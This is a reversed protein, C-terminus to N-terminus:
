IFPNNTESYIDKNSERKSNNIEKLKIFSTSKHSRKNSTSDDESSHQRVLQSSYRPRTSPIIILLSSLIMIPNSKEDLM